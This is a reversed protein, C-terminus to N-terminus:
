QPLSGGPRSWVLAFLEALQEVAQMEKKSYGHENNALAVQGVLATGVIIPVTMFHNIRVTVGAALTSIKIKELANFYVGGRHQFITHLLSGRGSATTPITKFGAKLELHDLFSTAAWVIQDGDALREAVFGHHSATLDRALDLFLQAVRGVNDAGNLIAQALQVLRSNLAVEWQLALASQRHRTVDEFCEIGGVIRGQDDRLLDANKMIHLIAGNKHRITCEKGMIPKIENGGGFLGCTENCPAQAFLFCHNGIMENAAYGTIREAVLNWSTIVKDCDVTFIASPVVRKILNTEQRNWNQHSRSKQLDTLLSKFEQMLGALEGDNLLSLPLPETNSHRLRYVVQSFKQFPSLVMRRITVAMFLALLIITLVAFCSAYLLANRTHIYLNRPLHMQLLAANHQRYDRLMVTAILEASSAEELFVAAPQELEAVLEPALADPLPVLRLHLRLQRSLNAVFGADLPRAFVMTGYNEGDGTSSRISRAAVLQLGDDNRFIGCAACRVSSETLNERIDNFMLGSLPRELGTMLDYSKAYLLTGSAAYIEVASLRNSVFMENLFNSAIYVSDPRAVYNRSDDWYAYDKVLRDLEAIEKDINARLREVHHLADQRELLVYGPLVFFKYWFFAVLVTVVTFLTYALLLRTKLSLPAPM